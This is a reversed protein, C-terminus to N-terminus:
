AAQRALQECEEPTLYNILGHIRKRNYWDEIYQFLAIRAQEFTAHFHETCANDSPYDKRSFSQIMNFDMTIQKSFHYDIIKELTFVYSISLLM